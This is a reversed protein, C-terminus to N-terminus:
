LGGRDCIDLICRDLVAILEDVETKSFILPPIFRLVNGATCNIIVGQELMRRAIAAADENRQMEMGLILGTGRVERIHAPYKEQLGRLAEKFYTGVSQVERLFTEDAITDLVVNAAACVLPNGGFTSGHDGAHFAVAVKETVVFAGIPVGGALGKALTVIDPMVGQAEYAYFTGTRGMGTQIEDFILLADHKDCLERVEKLYGDSPMRVGGEGQIPELMVAATRASMMAELAAIDNFPVYDFGGPLPEFGKHFKEQGTATLTALTRGHFSGLATIIQSKDPSITHAYKRAAKIAGENAEAGSNGFFVKGGATLQSLKAAADAQAETYYLNSVHILRAAQAAIANVLPAYNHGLVNVAIGGLADLYKRGNVDWVYSGDGHDLVIPYRAFVPLYSATDRTIIENENKM